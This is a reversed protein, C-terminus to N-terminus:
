RKAARIARQSVLRLRNQSRFSSLIRDHAFVFRQGDNLSREEEVVATEEAEFAALGNERGAGLDISDIQNELSEHKQGRASAGHAGLRTAGETGSLEESLRKRSNGLDAGIPNPGELVAGQNMDVTLGEGAQHVFM